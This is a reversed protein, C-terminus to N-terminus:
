FSSRPTWERVKKRVDGSGAFRRNAEAAQQTQDKEEREDNTDADVSDDIESGSDTDTDTDDPKDDDPKDDTDSDTDTDNQGLCTASCDADECDIFGDSDDDISDSCNTEGSNKGGSCAFVFSLLLM